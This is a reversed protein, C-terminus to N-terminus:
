NDPQTWEPASPCEVGDEGPCACGVGYWFEFESPGPCWGEKMAQCDARALDFWCTVASMSGDPLTCHTWCAGDTEHGDASDGSCATTAVLAIGLASGLAFVVQRMIGGADMIDNGNARM